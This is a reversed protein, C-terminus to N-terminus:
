ARRVFRTILTLGAYLLSNGSVTTITSSVIDYAYEMSIMRMMLKDKFAISMINRSGVINGNRYAYECLVLTPVCNALIHPIINGRKLDDCDNQENM